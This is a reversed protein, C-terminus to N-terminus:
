APGCQCPSGREPQHRRSPRAVTIANSESESENVAATDHHGHITVPPTCSPPARAARTTYVQDGVPWGVNEALPVFNPPRRFTSMKGNLIIHIM